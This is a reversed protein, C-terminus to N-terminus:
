PMACTTSATVSESAMLGACTHPCAIVPFDASADEIYFGDADQDCATRASAIPYRLESGDAARIAIRTDRAGNLANPWAFICPQAERRVRELAAVIEGPAPTVNVLEATTGGASAINGVSLLAGFGLVYTPIPPNSQLGASAARQAATDYDGKLADCEAPTADTIALVAVRSGRHDRAWTNGYQLAGTLAPITSTNASANDPIASQLTSLNDPLPAIPVLPTIYQSEDCSQAFLQLGVAIGHSADEALFQDLEDRLQTWWPYMTASDDLVLLLDLRQRTVPVSIPDCGRSTNAGGDAAPRPEADADAACLTTACRGADLEVMPDAPVVDILGFGRCGTVCCLCAVLLHTRHCLRPMM